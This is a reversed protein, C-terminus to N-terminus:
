WAAAIFLQENNMKGKGRSLGLSGQCRSLASPTCFHPKKLMSFMSCNCNHGVCPHAPVSTNRCTSISLICGPHSWCHGQNLAARGHTSFTGQCHLIMWYLSPACIQTQTNKLCNLFTNSVARICM